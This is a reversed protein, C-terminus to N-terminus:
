SVYLGCEKTHGVANKPEPKMATEVNIAPPFPGSNGRTQMYRQANAHGLQAARLMLQDAKALNQDPGDLYSLALNNMANPHNLRSAQEWLNRAEEVDIPVDGSVLMIGLNNMSRPNGRLVGECFWYAARKPDIPVGTGYRYEFGIANMGESSGARASLEYLRMAEAQNTRVGHGRAYLYGLNVLAEPDGTDAAERLFRYATTYDGNNYAQMGALTDASQAHAAAIAALTLTISVLLPTKFVRLPNGGM